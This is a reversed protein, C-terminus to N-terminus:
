ALIMKLDIKSTWCLMINVNQLNIKGVPHSGLGVGIAWLVFQRSFIIKTLCYYNDVWVRWTVHLGISPRNNTSILKM